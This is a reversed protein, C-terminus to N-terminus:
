TWIEWGGGVYRFETADKIAFRDMVCRPDIADTLKADYEDLQVIYAWLIPDRGPDTKSTHSRLGDLIVAKRAKTIRAM